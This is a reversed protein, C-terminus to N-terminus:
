MTHYGGPIETLTCGAHRFLAKCGNGDVISNIAMLLAVMRLHLDDLTNQFFFELFGHMCLTLMLLGKSRKGAPNQHFLTDLPALIAVEYRPFFALYPKLIFAFREALIDFVVVVHFFVPRPVAIKQRFYLPANGEDLFGKM